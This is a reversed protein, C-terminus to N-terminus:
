EYRGWDIHLIVINDALPKLDLCAKADEMTKHISDESRTFKGFEEKPQSKCYHTKLQVGDKDEEIFAIYVQESPNQDILEM